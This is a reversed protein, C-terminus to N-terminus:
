SSQRGLLTLRGFGPSPACYSRKHRRTGNRSDQHSPDRPCNQREAQMHRPPQYARSALIAALWHQHPGTSCLGSGSEARSTLDGLPFVKGDLTCFVACGEHLQGIRRQNRTNRQCREQLMTPCYSIGRGWLKFRRLDCICHLRHRRLQAAFRGGHHQKRSAADRPLVRDLLGDGV